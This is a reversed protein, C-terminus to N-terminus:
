AASANAELWKAINDAADGYFTRYLDETVYGIHPTALLNQLKRFPHDPPLPEVDFVDIAAGAIRRAQLAEILAAEDVIPARSTNVLRATPKMSALESGGVLGRTRGSLVLHITVVDAERFLTQKDVLVAGAASAKEATLNQSWAIVKMGFALGIRAVENGINGLGVVGLTKGRLNSGLGTQWGGAKLSAAEHDIGRMSALILSWTFEITPTADYGTATVAIGLDTAAPSDISANRPGTSAILKLNPLQQLIERPLPTRERMVCVVDFPRLREIVASPDALHDNFVVIEAHRRVDSWDALRLAM